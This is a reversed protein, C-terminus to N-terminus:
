ATDGEEAQPQHNLFAYHELGELIGWAYNGSAFYIRPEGRLHRLESSYNGVVVGLTDGRLMEIDNGSDGAVLMRDLPIGWKAGIYRVAQGKSARIPLVDLFAQHSYILNASLGCQRLHRVIDRIPPAKDPDIFYSIKHWRQNERPQLKLGPIGELTQLLRDRQWRYDIHRSWDNDPQLRRGYHIETGVSTIMLDPVPAGSEKLVKVASDIHRGTAVGLGMNTNQEVRLLLAHLAEDDGLLTNDIDCVVLRDVTPLRSKTPSIIRTRHQYGIIRQVSKIYSAVHAHWSYYRHAGKIGGASWARWRKDDSLADLIAAGMADADLPDVLYGNKCHRVIDRPGGDETAVIPLGSAASEILTLGFPETLAPNVFVGRSRTAIRYIEPVDNAHHHKPYAIQGYLDYKDVLLLLDTLVQRPGKNMTEIEDRNGAIVVLNATKRLQENEGYARVLTSINKREDPRSLALVIPKRPNRLFRNIEQQLPNDGSLRKPPYFRSLDTGPPIVQMRKPQYNSYHSYQTEVEQQTSAIVLSATDMALEEAEIRSNMNYQAEITRLPIGQDLLRRRKERGLSHGTHVLPVGLLGALRTGVYGADAYHSHIVDPVRGVSRIYKLAQDAMSDLYPWLVEKRLYRRPGFPLRIINAKPAIPEHAVAYDTAVKPDFVQRTILDVRDVDPREALARALEVVYKTQGGTDADRGLELNHGRILGHVSILMIYM